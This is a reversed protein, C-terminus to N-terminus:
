CDGLSGTRTGLEQPIRGKRGGYALDTNNQLSVRGCSIKKKRQRQDIFRNTVTRFSPVGHIYFWTDEVLKNAKPVLCIERVHQQDLRRIEVQVALSNGSYHIPIEYGDQDHKLHLEGNRNRGPSWGNKLFRGASILPQKVSEAVTASQRVKVLQGTAAKFVLEVKRQSAGTLRNGEADRLIPAAGIKEGYHQYSMPLVTMDSGSDLIAEVVESGRHMARVHYETPGLDDCVRVSGHYQENHENHAEHKTFCATTRTSDSGFQELCPGYTWDGLSDGQDLSVNPGKVEEGPRYDLSELLDPCFTWDDLHDEHDMRYVEYRVMRTYSDQLAKDELGDDSIDYIVCCTEPDQVDIRRM